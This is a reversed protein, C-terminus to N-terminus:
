IWNGPPAVEIWAGEVSDAHLTVSRVYKSLTKLSGPIALAQGESSSVASPNVTQTSLLQELEETLKQKEDEDPSLDYDPEVVVRGVNPLSPRVGDFASELFFELEPHM